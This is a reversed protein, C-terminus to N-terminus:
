VADEKSRLLSDFPFPDPHFMHPGNEEYCSIFGRCYEGRDHDTKGDLM